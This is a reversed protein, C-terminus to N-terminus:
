CETHLREITQNDAVIQDAALATLWGLESDLGYQDSIARLRQVLAVWVPEDHEHVFAM